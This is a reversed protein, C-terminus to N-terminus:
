PYRSDGVMKLTPTYLTPCLKLISQRRQWMTPVNWHWILLCGLTSGTRPRPLELPLLLRLRQRQRRAMPPFLLRRPRPTRRRRRQWRTEPYPSPAVTLPPPPPNDSPFYASGGPSPLHWCLPVFTSVVTTRKITKATPRQPSPCPRHHPTFCSEEIPETETGPRWKRTRTKEKDRQYLPPLAADTKGRTLIENFVSHKTIM